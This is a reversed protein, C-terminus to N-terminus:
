TAWTCFANFSCILEYKTCNHCCLPRDGPRRSVLFRGYYARGCPAIFHVMTRHDHGSLGAQIWTALRVTGSPGSPGFYIIHLPIGWMLHGVEQVNSLSM